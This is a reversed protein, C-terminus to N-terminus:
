VVWSWSGKAFCFIEVSREEADETYLSAEENCSSTAFDIGVELGVSILAAKKVRACAESHPFAVSKDKSVFRVCACICTSKYGDTNSYTMISELEVDVAVGLSWLLHVHFSVESHYIQRKPSYEFERSHM